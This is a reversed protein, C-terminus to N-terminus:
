GAAARSGAGALLTSSRLYLRPLAYARDFIIGAICEPVFKQPM